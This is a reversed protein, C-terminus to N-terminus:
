TSTSCRWLGYGTACNAASVINSAKAFDAAGANLHYDFDGHNSITMYLLATVKQQNTGCATQGTFDSFPIYTNDYATM